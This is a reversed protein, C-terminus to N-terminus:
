YTAQVGKVILDPHQAATNAGMKAAEVIIEPHQAAENVASKGMEKKAQQFGGSAKYQIRALFFMWVGWTVCLCWLISSGLLIFGATKSNKFEEVMRLFGGAGTGPVGVALAAFAIFQLGYMIFFGVFLSPKRKRGARYLVRYILFWCPALVLFYVISLVFDGIAKGASNAIMLATLAVINFALALVNGMWGFYGFTVLRKLEPTTMDENINHYVFPRCIPWNPKRLNGMSKEREILIQGRQDLMQERRNLEDEKQKLVQARAVLSPDANSYAANKEDFPNSANYEM